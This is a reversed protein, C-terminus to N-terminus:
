KNIQTVKSIANIDMPMQMSFGPGSIGLNGAIHTKGSEEILLGTQIDLKISSKSIGQLNDYTVTAGASKIPPANDAAKISSETTLNAVNGSLGDLHYVTKIELNMGGSSTMRTQTWEEGVKIEKGPLFWTFSEIMTKLTNDSITGAVQSKLASGTIGTLTISSTDKLIMDSLMKGNIIEMPQGTFAIKTYIPSKSLRNMICSMVDSTESSAMNGEVASSIMIQKGMANTTTKLTDFRIEAIIFEDTRDMMKMSMMYDVKSETTQQNGNITQSVTQETYSRLTYVKNKEPKMTLMATQAALSFCFLATFFAVTLVKKM